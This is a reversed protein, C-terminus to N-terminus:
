PGSDTPQLSPQAGGGAAPGRGSCGCKGSAESGMRGREARVRAESRRDSLRGNDGRLSAM